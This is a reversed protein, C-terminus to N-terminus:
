FRCYDYLFLRCSAGAKELADVAKSRQPNRNAMAAADALGYLDVNDDPMRENKNGPAGHEIDLSKRTRSLATHGNPTREYSPPTAVDSKPREHTEHSDTSSSNNRLHVKVSLRKILSPVPM